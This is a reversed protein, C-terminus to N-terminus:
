DNSLESIKTLLLTLFGYIIFLVVFALYGVEIKLFELTGFYIALFIFSVFYYLECIMNSAIAIELINKNSKFFKYFYKEYPLFLVPEVIRNISDFIVILVQSPFVSRLFFLSTSVKTMKSLFEKTLKKDIKKGVYYSAVISIVGSVSVLVGLDLTNEVVLFLFIPWVIWMLSDIGWRAGEAIHFNKPITKFIYKLVDKSSQTSHFYQDKTLLLPIMAIGMFFIAFNFFMDFGFYYTIAGGFLPSVLSTIILLIKIRALSSGEHGKHNLINKAIFIQEASTLPAKPAVRFILLLVILGLDAIFDGSLFRLGYTYIIMGPIHILMSHKIGIKEIIKGSFPIFILFIFENILFFLIIQFISYNLESYLFIPIFISILSFAIERVVKYIYYESIEPNWKHKLFLSHISKNFDEHRLM